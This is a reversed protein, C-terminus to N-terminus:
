TRDRARGGILDHIVEAAALPRLGFALHDGPFVVPPRGLQAALAAGCRHALQGASEEGVAVHLSPVAHLTSRPIEVAMLPVLLDRLFCGVDGADTADSGAEQSAAQDPSARQDPGPKQDPAALPAVGTTLQTLREMAAPLGSTLFVTRVEEARILLADHDPLLSLVPPEHALLGTVLDPRRTALVLSTIAGGSSGILWAPGTALSDLLAALDDALREPTIDGSDSRVSRGIGRPDFTIVTHDPALADALDAFDDIGAPAGVLVVIPGTGRVEYRLEARDVPLRHRTVIPRPAPAPWDSLSVDLAAVLRAFTADVSREAHFHGRRELDCFGHLTSRVHRVADTLDPEVLGYDGFVAYTARIIRAGNEADAENPALPEESAVMRGPHSRTYRRFATAFSHLAETGSRGAVAAGLLDALEARALASVRQKLDALGAVHAYLSPDAVGLRRAVAKLSLRDFGGEDSLEAAARTVSAVTLGARM